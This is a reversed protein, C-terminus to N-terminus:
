LLIMSIDEISNEKFISIRANLCSNRQITMTKYVFDNKINLLNNRRFLFGFMAKMQCNETSMRCNLNPLSLNGIKLNLIISKLFVQGRDQNQEKITM